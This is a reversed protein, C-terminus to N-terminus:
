LRRSVCVPPYSRRTTSIPFRNLVANYHKINTTVSLNSLTNILYHCLIYQGTADSCNVALIYTLYRCGVSDRTIGNWIATTFLWLPGLMTDHKNVEVSWYVRRAPKDADALSTTKITNLNSIAPFHSNAINIPLSYKLTNFHRIKYKFFASTYWTLELSPTSQSHLCSKLDQGEEERSIM